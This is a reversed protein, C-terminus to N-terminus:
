PDWPQQDIQNPDGGGSVYRDAMVLEDPSTAAPLIIAILPDPYLAIPGLLQDLQPASYLPAPPAEPPAPSTSDIVVETQAGAPTPVFAVPWVSICFCLARPLLRPPM